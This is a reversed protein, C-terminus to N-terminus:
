YLRAQYQILIDFPFIVKLLIFETYILTAEELVKNGSNDIFREMSILVSPNARSETVSEGM